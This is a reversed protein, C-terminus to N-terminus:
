IEKSYVVDGDADDQEKKMGLIRALGVAALNGKEMFAEFRTKKGENGGTMWAVRNMATKALDYLESGRASNTASAHLWYELEGVLEARFMACTKGHDDRVLWVHEGGKTWYNVFNVFYSPRRMEAPLQDICDEHYMIGFVEDVDSEEEPIAYHLIM